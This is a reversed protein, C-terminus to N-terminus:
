SSQDLEMEWVELLNEPIYKSNKNRAAWERLRLSRAYEHPELKLERVMLDFSTPEIAAIPQSVSKGWNPNGRYKKMAGNDDNCSAMRWTRNTSDIALVPPELIDLRCDIHDNSM